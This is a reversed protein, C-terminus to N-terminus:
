LHAVYMAHKTPKLLTSPFPFHEVKKTPHSKLQSLWWTHKQFNLPINMNKSLLINGYDFFRAWFLELPNSYVDELLIVKKKTVRICEALLAAPDPTHHLVFSVYTTDFYKDPYPIEKGNYLSFRPHNNAIDIVDIGVIEKGTQQELLRAVTMTGCGFDLIKQTSQVHPLLVSAIKQSRKSEFQQVLQTIM